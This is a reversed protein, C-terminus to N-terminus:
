TSYVWRGLLLMPILLAIVAVGYVPPCILLTVTADLVILSVICSKVASQVQQPGPNAIAALCPRLIWISMVLLALPWYSHPEILYVFATPCLTPFVALMGLGGALVALGLLLTARRSTTAESRAFTTVGVIYLGIGGAIMFHAPHYGLLDFAPENSRAHLSMGLLVNLFRCAGMVVPGFRTKKAVTDYVLIVCALVTAVAGPRWLTIGARTSILGALWALAVGIGLMAFGLRKAWIRSIAGSPLPRKPREQLDVEYDFVDNLVMGAMYM